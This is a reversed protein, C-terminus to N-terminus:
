TGQQSDGIGFHLGHEGRLVVASIRLFLSVYLEGQL